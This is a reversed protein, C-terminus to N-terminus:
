NFYIEFIRACIIDPYSHATSISICFSANIGSFAINIAATLPQFYM